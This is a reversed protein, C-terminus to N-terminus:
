AGPGDGRAALLHGMAAHNLWQERPEGIEHALALACRMRPLADEAEGLMQRRLAAAGRVRWARSEYKRSRTPVAIEVAQNAHRETREVDGRALWLEGLSAWCHTSYRWTM